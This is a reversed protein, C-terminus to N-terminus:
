KPRRSLLAKDAMEYCQEIAYGDKQFIAMAWEDRLEKHLSQHFRREELAVELGRIKTDKARDRDLLIAYAATIANISNFGLLALCEAEHDGFTRKVNDATLAVSAPQEEVAQDSFQIPTVIM